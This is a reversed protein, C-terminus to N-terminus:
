KKTQHYQDILSLNESEPADVLDSSTYTSIEVKNESTIQLLAELKQKAEVLEPLKTGLETAIKLIRPDTTWVEKGKKDVVIEGNKKTLPIKKNSKLYEKIEHIQANVTDLTDQHEDFQLEKYKAIALEIPEVKGYVIERANRDLRTGEMTWGCILAAKERRQRDPLTRLPSRRDAVLMVFRMRRDRDEVPLNTRNYLASFEPIAFLEPNDDFVSVGDRIKYLM